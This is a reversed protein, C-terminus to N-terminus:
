IIELNQGILQLFGPVNGRDFDDTDRLRRTQHSM